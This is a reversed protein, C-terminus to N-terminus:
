SDTSKEELRIHFHTYDIDINLNKNEKFIFFENSERVKPKFKELYHHCVPWFPRCEIRNLMKKM